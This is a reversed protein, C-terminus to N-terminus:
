SAEGPREVTAGRMDAMALLDEISIAACALGTDPHDLVVRGSPFEVGHYLDGTETIVNFPCGWESVVSGGEAAGVVQM